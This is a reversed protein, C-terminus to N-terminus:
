ESPIISRLSGAVNQNIGEASPTHRAHVLRSIFSSTPVWDAHAPITPSNYVCAVNVEPGYSLGTLLKPTVVFCQSSNTAKSVSVIIDHVARENRSDMGQNIEDVVRFPASAIEQLAMLYLITIVAREGGSQQKEKLVELSGSTHFQVRIVIRWQDYKGDVRELVCEGVNGLHSMFRSFNVNVRQTVEELRAVWAAEDTAISAALRQREEMKLMRRENLQEVTHQTREFEELSSEGDAVRFQDMQQIAEELELQLAQRLQAPNADITSIDAPVIQATGSMQTFEQSLAIMQGEIEDKRERLVAVDSAITDIQRQAANVEPQIQRINDDQFSAWLQYRILFNQAERFLKMYKNFKNVILLHSSMSNKVRDQCQALRANMSQTFQDSSIQEREALCKQIEQQILQQMEQSRRQASAYSSLTSAQTRVTNEEELLRQLQAANEAASRQVTELMQSFDQPPDYRMYRPERLPLSSVGVPMNSGSYNSFFPRNISSNTAWSHLSLRMASVTDVNGHSIAIRHFELSDCLVFKVLDPADIVDIALCTFGHRRLVDPPYPANFQGAPRNEPVQIINVSKGASMRKVLAFDDPHSVIIAMNLRVPILMEIIKEFGPQRLTLELGVPGAFDGKFKDRNAKAWEYVGFVDQFIAVERFLRQRDRLPQGARQSLEEQQNALQRGAIQLRSIEMQLAQIRSEPTVGAQHGLQRIKEAVTAQADVQVQYEAQLSEIRRTLGAAKEQTQSMEKRLRIFEAIAENIDRSRADVSHTLRGLKERIQVINNQGRSLHAAVREKNTQFEGVRRGIDDMHRRASFLSAERDTVRGLIEQLDIKLEAIRSYFILAELRHRVQRKELYLRYQEVIPSLSSRLSELQLHRSNLQELEQDLTLLLRSGQILALHPAHLGAPSVARETELLIEEPTLRVFEGVKEQPLFQLLSDIHIRFRGIFKFFTREPIHVGDIFYESRNDQSFTRCITVFPQGLVNAIAQTADTVAPPNGEANSNPVPGRLILVVFSTESAPTGNRIFDRVEKARGLLSPSGGAALCIACTITSKGAGNPGVIMNMYPGPTYVVHRYTIFNQCIVRLISGPKYPRLFNEDLDAVYDLHATLHQQSQRLPTPQQVPRQAAQRHPRM